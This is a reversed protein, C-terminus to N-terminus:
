EDEGPAAFLEPRTYEAVALAVSAHLGEGTSRAAEAPTLGDAQGGEVHRRVTERILHDAVLYLPNSARNANSWDSQDCFPDIDEVMEAAAIILRFAIQRPTLSGPASAATLANRIAQEALRVGAPLVEAAPPCSPTGCSKLVQGDLTVAWPRLPVDPGPDIGHVACEGGELQLETNQGAPAAPLALALEAIAALAPRTTRRDADHWLHEGTLAILDTPTTTKITSTTGQM